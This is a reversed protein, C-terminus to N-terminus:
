LWPASFAMFLVSGLEFIGLILTILKDIKM